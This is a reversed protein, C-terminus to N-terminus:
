NWGWFSTEFTGDEYSIILLTYPTKESTRKVVMDTTGIRFWRKFQDISLKPWNPVEAIKVPTMTEYKERIKIFM